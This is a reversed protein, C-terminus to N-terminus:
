KKTLQIVPGLSSKQVVRVTYSTDTIEVVKYRPTKSMETVKNWPKLIYSADELWTIRYKTKQKSGDKNKVCEVQKNGRRRIRTEDGNKSKLIFKGRKLKEFEESTVGSVKQDSLLEKEETTARKLLLYIVKGQENKEPHLVWEKSQLKETCDSFKIVQFMSDKIVTRKEIVLGKAPGQSLASGAFLIVLIISTIIPKM